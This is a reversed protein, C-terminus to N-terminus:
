EVSTQYEGFENVAEVFALVNEWPVEPELTHSPALVLGGGRGVTEIRERVNRRVDEPTGFPMVSQTGITGWFALRDGYENKIKTPDMCEPQVPNLIEVGVEILEPIIPEIDGDSHFFIFVDPNVSKATRILNALRPKFWERWTNPHILMGNQGGVDEGFVIIDVGAAVYNEVMHTCITEIKDCLVGALDPNQLLDVLFEQMGRIQWARDFVTFDLEAMVGLGRQKLHTVESALGQYRYEADLDPFPYEDIEHVQTIHTLPSIRRVFHHMSGPARAVGWEDITTEPPLEPLYETFDTEKQTPRCEVRRMELAFYDNPDEAGTEKRFTNLLFPSLRLDKPVRDPTKRELTTLLRERPNVIEM